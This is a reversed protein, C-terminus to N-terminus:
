DSFTSRCDQISLTCIRITTDLELLSLFLAIPFSFQRQFIEKHRQQLIGVVREKAYLPTFFPIRPGGMIEEVVADFQGRLHTFYYAFVRLSMTFGSGLRIIRVNEVEEQSASKRFESSLITVEHGREACGRALKNIYIDGGGLYPNFSDRFALFLIRM